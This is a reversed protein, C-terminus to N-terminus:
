WQESEIQQIMGINASWYKANSINKDYQNDQLTVKIFKINSASKNTSDNFKWKLTQNTYDYDSKTWEDSYGVTIYITYREKKRGSKKTTNSDTGNYDDADDYDEESNEDDDTQISSITIDESSACVRVFLIYIWSNCKKPCIRSYEDGSYFGGKRLAQSSDLNSQCELVNDNGTILINTSPDQSDTNNEDWALTSIDMMKTMMNFIGDEKLTFEFTKNTTYIVKPIVTFVFAIIVITFILEILSFSKKL